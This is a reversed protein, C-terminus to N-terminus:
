NVLNAISRVRKKFESYLNIAITPSSFNKQITSLEQHLSHIQPNTVKELNVHNHYFLVEDPITFKQVMGWTGRQVFEGIDISYPPIKKSLLSKQVKELKTAPILVSWQQSPSKMVVSNNCQLAVTFGKQIIPKCGNTLLSNIINQM